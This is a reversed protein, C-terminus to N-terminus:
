RSDSELNNSKKKIMIPLPPAIDEESGTDTDVTKQSLRGEKECFHVVIKKQSTTNKNEQLKAVAQEVDKLKTALEDLQKFRQDVAKPFIITSSSISSSPSPTFSQPLSQRSKTATQVYEVSKGIDRMMNIERLKSEEDQTDISNASNPRSEDVSRADFLSSIVPM